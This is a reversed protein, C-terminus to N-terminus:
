VTRLANLHVVDFLKGSIFFKPAARCLHHCRQLVQALFVEEDSMTDKWSGITCLLYIDAGRGELLRNVDSPDTLDLNASISIGFRELVRRIEATIEATLDKAM